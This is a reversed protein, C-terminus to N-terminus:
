FYFKAALQLLRPDRYSTIQGYTSSGLSTGIGNPNTHNFVNFAEARFQFSAREGFRLNKFLSVDWRELGPGQIIGRGANGPRIVGAPVDVFCSTNFWQQRTHPAGVNPNCAWDPRPGASSSGIIGLGAPDRGLSSAPSLPLGTTLQTIGSIEWGGLVHGLLGKQARLFPLEYVYNITAIHRRDFSALGYEGEHRNYTNQAANSRDSQNDTLNKSYTYALNILSNGGFRKEVNVQLSHYNSNFWTEISNIAAYGRYPRLSNLLPTNASTFVTGAPVLGSTVALGPPVENIDVIGLLHTGKSGFYGVSLLASRGIQHQVEM